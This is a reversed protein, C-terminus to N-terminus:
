EPLAAIDGLFEEDNGPYYGTIWIKKSIGSTPQEHIVALIGAFL